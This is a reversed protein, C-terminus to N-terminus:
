QLKMVHGLLWEWVYVGNYFSSFGEAGMMHRGIDLEPNKMLKEESFSNAIPIILPLEEELLSLLM